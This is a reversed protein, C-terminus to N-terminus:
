VVFINMNFSHIITIYLKFKVTKIILIKIFEKLTNSGCLNLLQKSIKLDMSEPTMVFKWSKILFDDPLCQSIDKYNRVIVTLFYNKDCIPIMQGPDM